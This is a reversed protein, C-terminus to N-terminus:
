TVNATVVSIDVDIKVVNAVAGAEKICAFVNGIGIALEKMGAFEEIVVLVVMNDNVDEWEGETVRLFVDDVIAVPIAVIRAVTYVEL